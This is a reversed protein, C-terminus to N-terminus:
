FSGTLQVGYHKGRRRIGVFSRKFSDDGDAYRLVFPTSDEDLLNKGYFQLAMHENGIGIRANLLKAEGTEAYNHVQAFKSSEYSYSLGAFWEGDQMMSNSFPARYDVDAFFSHEATRPIQKGVISGFLSQCGDVDPFQDGTSCNISGDDAVDNLVGENQDAGDTFEPDLWAYNATLTLGEMSDPRALFEFELGTIEADGANVTASQTNGGSAINQTLQYGEIENRFLAVNAFLQGDAFSNKSGIEFSRVDEEDFTGQGLAQALVNNFGGPKQGESYIGYLLHDDAVNWDLTVRPSFSEFTASQDTPTPRPDGEDFDFTQQNIEEEAYRAEVSLAVTPSLDVSVSGFIAMNTIDFNNENRSNPTSPGFLPSMSSCIPNAACVAQMQANVALFSALADGPGNAPVMRTDRDEDTQDFYYFGIMTDFRDGDHAFRFEQSWDKTESVGEFTFDVTSGVYGYGFPPVPFGSIPFGNPTFNATQFANPGYDADIADASEVSNYGTISTLTWRDNIDYDVKLSANFTDAKLYAGGNIQEQDNINVQGPEIVGCYYRGGGQYLSGNDFFCNNESAGQAFFPAQEDDTENYYLRGRATLEDSPRWELVGAISQSSEGGTKEGNFRNTFEGGFDYYRATLSGSVTDSLPGRITGSAEYRNFESIDIRYNGSTEDSPSKTIVNIAGSYTNRGYLASQPGKVVEMREINNVDFDALSGSIYVGDIFFSVGSAGLINAQGRIVPRNSQRGFENDFTLGPTTKAIDAVDNLNQRAIAEDTVVAVTVPADQLTEDKKRATIVIEDKAQQAFAVAPMLMTSSLLAATVMTAKNRTNIM